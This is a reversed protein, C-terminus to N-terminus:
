LCKLGLYLIGRHTFKSRSAGVIFLSAITAFISANFAPSGQLWYYVAGIANRWYICIIFLDCSSCNDTGSSKKLVVRSLRVILKM